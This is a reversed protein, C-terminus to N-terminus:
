GPEKALLLAGLQSAVREPNLRTFCLPWERKLDFRRQDDASPQYTCKKQLCPTCGQITPQGSHVQSKGYAGTLGPNT